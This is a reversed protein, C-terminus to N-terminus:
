RKLAARMNKLPAEGGFWLEFAAAAQQVLMEMGDAAPLGCSQAYNVWATGGIKYVIDYVARVAGVRNLRLPMPDRQNLGLPTTNIVLDYAEAALSKDSTIYTIRNSRRGAVQQMEAAHRRDRALVTVGACGSELLAHLVARAGGGAGLVLARTGHLDDIVATVAKRFGIVDTNEGYIKGREAWFTNCARTAKVAPSAKDVAAAALGKHPITVNGGGGAHALGRVLGDFEKADCRLPIYVADLNRVRMAANQIIPSLAHAVPNGLIAFVRTSGTIM